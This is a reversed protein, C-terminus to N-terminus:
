GNSSARAAILAQGLKGGRPSASSWTSPSVLCKGVRPPVTFATSSTLKATRRPVMTPRTPSDPEPLVVAPRQVKRSTSGEAPRIRKSPTSRQGLAGQSGVAPPQLDHELIGIRAEVWPQTDLVDDSLRDVRM